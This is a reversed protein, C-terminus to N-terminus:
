KTYRFIAGDHEYKTQNKTFIKQILQEDEEIAAELHPHIYIEKIKRFTQKTTQELYHLQVLFILYDQIPHHDSHILPFNDGTRISKRFFRICQNLSFEAERELPALFDFVFRSQWNWNAVNMKFAGRVPLHIIAPLTEYHLKNLYLWQHWQLEEGYLRNRTMLRFHRKEQKWVRSLEKKPLFSQSFLDTITMNKLPSIEFKGVARNNGMMYLDQIKIFKSTQPCYYYLTSPYSSSFQHIFTQTFADIKIINKTKRKLLKEGLIWIVHIGAQKYGKTREFMQVPPIKSCQFEIAIKKGNLEILFDPRQKIEQIYFELEAHIYQKKLWQYIQLKGQEHYVGEGGNTSPCKAKSQHSFHAIVKEGARLIVRENCVPCYFKPNARKLEQREKKSVAAPTILRGDALKAQLM